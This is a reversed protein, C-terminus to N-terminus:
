FKELLIRIFPFIPQNFVSEVCLELTKTLYLNFNSRFSRQNFLFNSGEPVVPVIQFGPVIDFGGFFQNPDAM